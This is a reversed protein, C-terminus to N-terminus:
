AVRRRRMLVIGTGVLLLSFLILGWEGLTPVTRFAIRDLIIPSGDCTVYYCTDPQITHGAPGMGTVIGSGALTIQGAFVADGPLNQGPGNSCSDAYYIDYSVGSIGEILVTGVTGPAGVSLITADCNVEVDWTCTSTEGDPNTVLFTLTTPGNATWSATWNVNYNTNPDAGPSMPVGNMTCSIGNTTACTMTLVTGVDVTGPPNQSILCTPPNYDIDCIVEDYIANGGADFGHARTTINTANGVIPTVVFAGAPLGATTNSNYIVSFDVTGSNGALTTTVSGGIDAVSNAGCNTLNDPPELTLVVSCSFSGGAPTNGTFTYTGVHLNSVAGISLVNNCVLVNTGGGGTVTGGVVSINVGNPGTLTGYAGGNFRANTMTLDLTATSGLIPTSDWALLCSSAAFPASVNCPTGGIWSSDIPNQVEYTITYSRNAGALPTGDGTTTYTVNHSAGFPGNLTDTFGDSGVVQIRGVNTTGPFNLQVSAGVGGNTADAWTPNAPTATAGACNQVGFILVYGDTLTGQVAADVTANFSDTVSNQDAGTTFEVEIYDGNSISSNLVPFSIYGILHELADPRFLQGSAVVNLGTVIPDTVDEIPPANGGWAVNFNNPMMNASPGGQTAVNRSDGATCTGLPIPPNAIGQVTTNSGVFSSMKFSPTGTLTLGNVTYQARTAVTVIDQTGSFGELRMYIGVQFCTETGGSIGSVPVVLQDARFHLSQGFLGLSICIGLALAWTKKFM